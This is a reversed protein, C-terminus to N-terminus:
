RPPDLTVRLGTLVAGPNTGNPPLQLSDSLSLTLADASYRVPTGASPGAAPLTKAAPGFNVALGATAALVALAAVGGLARRRRVTRRAAEM